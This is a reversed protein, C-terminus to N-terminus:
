VRGFALRLVKLLPFSLSLYTLKEQTVTRPDDSICGDTILNTQPRQGQVPSDATLKVRSSQRQGESAVCQVIWACGGMVVGVGVCM